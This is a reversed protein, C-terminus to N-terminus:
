VCVQKCYFGEPLLGEDSKKAAYVRRAPIALLDAQIQKFHIWQRKRGTGPARDLPRLFSRGNGPSLCLRPYGARGERWRVSWLRGPWLVRNVVPIQGQRGRM